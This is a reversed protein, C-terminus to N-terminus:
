RNFLVGIQFTPNYFYNKEPTQTTLCIMQTTFSIKSTLAYDVSFIPSFVFVGYKYLHADDLVTQTESEVHLNTVAGKGAFMSLVFRFKGTKVVGGAFLGGYGINMYSNSSNSTAYHTKQSGGYIGCTFHDWFYFRLIGGISNSLGTIEQHPNAAITYGPQYFLMGGSYIDKKSEQAFTGTVMLLFAVIFGIKKLLKM